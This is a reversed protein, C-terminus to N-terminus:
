PFYQLFRNLFHLLVGCIVLGVVAKTSYVSRFLLLPLAFLALKHFTAAVLICSLFAFYSPRALFTVSMLVISASLGVRIQAFNYNLFFLSMYIFVALATNRSSRLSLFSVILFSCFSNLFYVANHSTTVERLLSNVILFGIEGHVDDFPKFFSENSLADSFAPVSNYMAQYGFYDFGVDYSIGALLIAFPAVFVSLSPTFRRVNSFSVFALLTSYLHLVVLM